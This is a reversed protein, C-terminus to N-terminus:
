KNCAVFIRKGDASPQVWTPPCSVDGPKPPEMGHGSMDHTNAMSRVAPPGSMGMEKGRTLVFHRSVGFTRTDIEVAMDNMMCGSYQKTGDPTIRSGHPMVCTPIRAVEVMEDTAVVSM